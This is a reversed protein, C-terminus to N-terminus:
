VYLKSDSYTVQDRDIKRLDTSGAAHMSSSLYVLRTPREILATLVYPAVTNVTFVDSSHVTGANHIIADFKGFATAQEAVDKIQDFVGLDGYVVGHWSTAADQVNGLQSRGRHHVVVAHGRSTLARATDLGIGSSAGTVLVLM